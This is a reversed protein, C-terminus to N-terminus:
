NILRVEVSGDVEPTNRSTTKDKLFKLSDYAYWKIKYADGLSRSKRCERQFQGMLSKIKAVIEAKGINMRSSIENLAYNKLSKNKFDADSPNWLVRKQRYLEILQMVQERSWEVESSFKDM